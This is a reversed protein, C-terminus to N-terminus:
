RNAQDIAFVNTHQTTPITPWIFWPKAAKNDVCAHQISTCSTCCLKRPFISDGADEHKERRICYRDKEIRLWPESSDEPIKRGGFTASPQPNSPNTAEVEVGRVSCVYVLPTYTFVVYVSSLKKGYLYKELFVPHTVRRSISSPARSHFVIGMITSGAGARRSQPASRNYLALPPTPAPQLLRGAATNDALPKMLM